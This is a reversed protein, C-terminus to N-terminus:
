AEIPRTQSDSAPSPDQRRGIASCLIQFSIHTLIILYVVATKAYRSFLGAIGGALLVQQRSGKDKLHLGGGDM